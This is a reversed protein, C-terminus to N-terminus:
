WLLIAAFRLFAIFPIAPKNYRAVTGMFYKIKGFMREIVNREKYLFIMNARHKAIREQRFSRGVGIMGIEDVIHGVDCGKDPPVANATEGELLSPSQLCDAQEVGTLFVEDIDLIMLAQWVSSWTKCNKMFLAM